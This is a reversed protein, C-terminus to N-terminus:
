DWLWCQDRLDREVAPIEERTQCWGTLKKGNKCRITVTYGGDSQGPECGATAFVMLLVAMFLWKIKKM